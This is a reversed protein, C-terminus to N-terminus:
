AASAGARQGPLGRPHEAFPVVDATHISWDLMRRELDRQVAAYEPRDYVNSLERPDTPLDYLESVGLPRRVLRHTTTRISTARCVSEPVDQQLRGKPFYIHEPARIGQDTGARGEFAHPEHPDYGGESFVARDPDGPAGGLQPVLSRAFHTHEARIGALELATAMVDFAEVPEGVVHGQQM